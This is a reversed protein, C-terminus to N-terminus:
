LDKIKHYFEPYDNELSTKYCELWIKNLKDQLVSAGTLEKYIKGVEEFDKIIWTQKAEVWVKMKKFATTFSSRTTRLGSLALITTQSTKKPLHLWLLYLYLHRYYVINDKHTKMVLFEEISLTNKVKTNRYIVVAKLLRDRLTEQEIM